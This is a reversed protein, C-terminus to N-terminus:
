LFNADIIFKQHSTFEGDLLRKNLTPKSMKLLFFIYKKKFGKEKIAKSLAKGYHKPITKTQTKTTMKTKIPERLHVSKKNIM